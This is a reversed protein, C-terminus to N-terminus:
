NVYQSPRKQIKTLLQGLAADFKTLEFNQPDDHADSLGEDIAAHFAPVMWSGARRSAVIYLLALRDYQAPTFGPEPAVADNKPGGRPDRRRPQVSEIHIFLGRAPEGIVKSELKTARWPVSLEHGVLMEGRRNIFLHAVADAGAFQRLGNVESSTGIDTPFPRDGFWPASTDHIVFYRASPAGAAGGRGRSIPADLSGGVAAETLNLAALERRVDDGSVEVPQGVKAELNPPLSPLTAGVKGWKAVSRLLCRAQENATGAFALIQPDFRCSGVTQGQAISGNAATLLAACLVLRWRRNRDQLPTWRFARCGRNLQV